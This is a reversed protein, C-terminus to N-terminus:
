LGFLKRIDNPSDVVNGTASSQNTIEQIGIAPQQTNQAVVNTQQQTNQRPQAVTRDLQPRTTTNAALFQEFSIGLTAPEPIQNNNPQLLVSQQPLPQQLQTDTTANALATVNRLRDEESCLPFFM